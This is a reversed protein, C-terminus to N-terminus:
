MQVFGRVARCQGKGDPYEDAKRRGITEVHQHHAEAGPRKLQIQDSQQGTGKKVVRPSQNGDEATGIPGAGRYQAQTFKWGEVPAIQRKHADIMLHHGIDPWEEDTSHDQAHDPREQGVRERVQQKGLIALMPGDFPRFWQGGRLAQALISEDGNVCSMELRVAGGSRMVSRGKDRIGDM